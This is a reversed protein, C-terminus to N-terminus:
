DAWTDNLLAVRYPFLDARMIGHAVAPDAAVIAEADSASAARFVVIGFSSEDTNLTRGALLLVGKGLLAKLYDFHQATLEGEAETLGRM